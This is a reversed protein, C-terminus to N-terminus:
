EGYIALNLIDKMESLKMEDGLEPIDYGKDRWEAALKQADEKRRLGDVDPGVEEAEEGEGETETEAPESASASSKEPEPPDEPPAPPTQPQPAPQPAPAPELTKPQRVESWGNTKLLFDADRDPVSFRGEADGVVTKPRTPDQEDRTYRLTLKSGALNRNQIKKM